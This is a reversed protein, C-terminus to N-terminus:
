DDWVHLLQVLPKCQPHRLPQQTNHQRQQELEFYGVEKTSERDYKAKKEKRIQKQNMFSLKSRTNPASYPKTSYKNGMHNNFSKPKIQSGKVKVKRPVKTALDLNNAEQCVKKSINYTYLTSYTDNSKSRDESPTYPGEVKNQNSEEVSLLLFINNLTELAQKMNRMNNNTIHGKHGSANSASEKAVSVKQTPPGEKKHNVLIWNGEPPDRVGTSSGHQFRTGTSDHTSISSTSSVKSYISGM